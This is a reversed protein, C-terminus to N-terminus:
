LSIGGSTPGRDTGQPLGKRRLFLLEPFGGVRDQVLDVQVLGVRDDRKTQVVQQKLARPIIYFRARIIICM